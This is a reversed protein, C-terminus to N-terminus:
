NTIRVKKRHLLCIIRNCILQGFFSRTFSHQISVLLSVFPSAYLEHLENESKIDPLISLIERHGSSGSGAMEALVALLLKILFPSIVTNEKSDNLIKQFSFNAHM